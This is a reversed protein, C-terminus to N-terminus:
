GAYAHSLMVSRSFKGECLKSALNLKLGIPCKSVPKPDCTYGGITNVCVETVRNCSDQSRLCEDTDTAFFVRRLIFSPSVTKIKMIDLIFYHIYRHM